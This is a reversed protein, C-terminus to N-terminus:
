GCLPSDRVRSGAPRTTAVVSVRPLKPGAEARTCTFGPVFQSCSRHCAALSIPPVAIGPQDRWKGPVGGM